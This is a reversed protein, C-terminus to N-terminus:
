TGYDSPLSPIGTGIGGGFQALRQELRAIKEEVKPDGIGSDRLIEIQNLINEAQNLSILGEKYNLDVMVSLAKLKEASRAAKLASVEKGAASLGGALDGAAIGAGLQVLAAGQQDRLSQGGGELIANIQDMVNSRSTAVNTEIDSPANIISQEPMDGRARAQRLFNLQDRPSGKRFAGWGGEGFGINTLNISADNLLGSLEAEEDSTLPVEKAEVDTGVGASMDSITDAVPPIAAGTILAASTRPNNLVVDVAKGGLSTPAQTTTGVTIGGPNAPNPVNMAPRPGTGGLRARLSEIGGKLKDRIKGASGALKKRGLKWLGGALAGKGGALATEAAAKAGRGEGFGKDFLEAFPDFDLAWGGSGFGGLPGTGSEDLPVIKGEEDVTLGIAILNPDIYQGSQYRIAGGEKMQM